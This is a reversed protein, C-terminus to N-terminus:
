EVGNKKMHVYQNNHYVTEFHLSLPWVYTDFIVNKFIKKLDKKEGHSHYTNNSKNM